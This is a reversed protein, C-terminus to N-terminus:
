TEVIQPAASDALAPQASAVYGEHLLPLHMMGTVTLRKLILQEEASHVRPSHSVHFSRCFTFPSQQVKAAYQRFGQSTELADSQRTTGCFM